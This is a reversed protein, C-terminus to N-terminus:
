VGIGFTPAPFGGINMWFANILFRWVKQSQGKLMGVYKGNDEDVKMNMRELQNKWDVTWLKM